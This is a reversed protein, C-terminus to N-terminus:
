VDWEDPTMALPLMGKADRLAVDGDCAISQFMKEPEQQMCVGRIAPYEDHNLNYAAWYHQFRTRHYLEAATLGSQWGVYMGPTYGAVAVQAWWNNCYRITDSHPVSANVSELDLWVCTGALIGCKYAHDSAVAGYQTGKDPTPIWRGPEVHQVVMLALGAHLLDEAEARTLDNRKAALRPAYRLAFRFGAMVFRRAAGYDVVSNCDFGRTGAPVQIVRAM